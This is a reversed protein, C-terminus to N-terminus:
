LLPFKKRISCFVNFKLPRGDVIMRLINSVLELKSTFYRVVPFSNKLPKKSTNAVNENQSSFQANPKIRHRKSVKRINGLKRLRNKLDNPLGRPLEYVRHKNRIIASRKVQPSLSIQYFLM